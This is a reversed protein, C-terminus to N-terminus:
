EVFKQEFLECFCKVAYCRTCLTPIDEFNINICTYNRETKTPKPTPQKYSHNTYYLTDLTETFNMDPAEAGSSETQTQLPQYKRSSTTALIEFKPQDLKTLEAHPEAHLVEPVRYEEGYIKKQTTVTTAQNATPSWKFQIPEYKFDPYISPNYLPSKVQEPDYDIEATYQPSSASVSQSM